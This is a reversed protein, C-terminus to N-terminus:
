SARNLSKPMNAPIYARGGGVNCKGQARKVQLCM